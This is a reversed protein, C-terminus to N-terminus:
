CAAQWQGIHAAPAVRELNRHAAHLRENEMDDAFEVSVALNGQHTSM